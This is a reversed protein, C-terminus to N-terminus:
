FPAGVAATWCVSRVNCYDCATKGGFKISKGALPLEEWRVGDEYHSAAQKLLELVTYECDYPRVALAEHLPLLDFKFPMLADKGGVSSSYWIIGVTPRPKRMQDLLEAYISAQVQHEPKAGGSKIWKINFDNITKWDEIAWSDDSLQRLRDLKGNVKVGGIIGELEIEAMGAPAAAEVFAHWGTGKIAPNLELPDVAYPESEEIAGRRPCGLGHSVRVARQVYQSNRDLLIARAFDPHVKEGCATEAFHSLPVERGGCAACIWNAIPM